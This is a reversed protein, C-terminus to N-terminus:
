SFATSTTLLWYLQHREGEVFVRLESRWPVWGGAMQMTKSVTINVSLLWLLLFPFPHERLVCSQNLLNPDVPKAFVRTQGAILPM